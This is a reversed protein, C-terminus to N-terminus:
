FPKMVTDLGCKQMFANTFVARTDKSLLQARSQKWTTLKEKGYIALTRGKNMPSNLKGWHISFPIGRDELRFIVNKFVTHNAKSDLGDMEIVSTNDFKTFGLTAQTGKVFRVAVAGAFANESIEELIEKLTQPLDPTSVAFAFSAINGTFRTDRFISGISKPEPTAPRINKEFEQTTLKKILSYSAGPGILGMLGKMMWIFEPSPGPAHTGGHDTIYNPPAPLKYFFFIYLGKNSNKKLTYPNLNMEMHYLEHGPVSDPMGPLLQKLKPIDLTSLADMLKDSYVAESIRYEKLLFLPETEIMLGHIIGFSGFGVLVSNFLDDDRHPTAGLWNIFKDSAVPYSERELWVHTDPGTILHIGVIADHVAGTYLAAGHTGTSTCGAITQGNSAGSARICRAPRREIELYKNLRAVQTGCEVFLLDDNTKAYSPSVLTNNVNFILDLGKTQVIGGNCIGVSSFSWNAGIARLTTSNKIAHGIVWQLNKTARKYLDALTLNPDAHDLIWSCDPTFEHSFNEHVNKWPSDPHYPKIGPPIM